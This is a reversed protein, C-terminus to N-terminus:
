GMKKMLTPKGIPPYHIEILGNEELIKAWEEIKAEPVHFKKAAHDLRIGKTKVIIDYLEDVTTKLSAPEEPTQSKSKKAEALPNKIVEEKNKKTEIRQRITELLLADKKGSKKKESKEKM